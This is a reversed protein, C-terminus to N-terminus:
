KKNIVKGLKDIKKEIRILDEKIADIVKKKKISLVLSIIQFFIWLIIVIGITQLWTGLQGVEVVMSQLTEASINVVEPIAM